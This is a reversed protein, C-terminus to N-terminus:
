DVVARTAFVEIITGSNALMITRRGWSQGRAKTRGELLGEALDNAVMPKVIVTGL